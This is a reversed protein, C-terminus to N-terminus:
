SLVNPFPNPAGSTGWAREAPSPKVAAPSRKEPEANPFPNKTGANNITQDESPLQRTNSDTVMSFASRIKRQFFSTLSHSTTM